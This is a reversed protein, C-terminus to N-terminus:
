DKAPPGPPLTELFPTHKPAAAKKKRGAALQASPMFHAQLEGYAAHLESLALACKDYAELVAYERTGVFPCDGSAAGELADWCHRAFGAVSPGAEIGRRFDAPSWRGDGAVAAPAPTSKAEATTKESGQEPENIGLLVAVALFIGDPRLVESGGACHPLMLLRRLRQGAESRAAAKAEPALLRERVVLALDCLVAQVQKLATSRGVLGGAFTLEHRSTCFDGPQTQM